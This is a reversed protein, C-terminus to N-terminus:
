NELKQGPKLDTPVPSMARLEEFGKISIDAWQKFLASSTPFTPSATRSRCAAPTARRASTSRAGSCRAPRRTACSRPVADRAGVGDHLHAVPRGDHHRARHHLPRGRRAAPAARRRGARDVVELGAKQYAETFVETFEDRAAQAIREIDEQDLRQSLTAADRNYDQAWDKQFAVEVPDMMLKTYPRFDAGPLLFAADLRKPKVEVLGDWNGSDQAIAASAMLCLAAAFGRTFADLNKM